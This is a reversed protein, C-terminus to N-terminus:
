YVTISIRQHRDRYAPCRGTASMSGSHTGHYGKAAEIDRVAFSAFATTENLM